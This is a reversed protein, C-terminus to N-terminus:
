GPNRVSVIPIILFGLILGTGFGVAHSLYSIQPDFTTPFLMVLVFGFARFIRVPVSHDTDHRIYLVLWLSVMGYAMGSAGLLRIAPDYVAVTVLNTILGIVVATVPFVRLGFYANLMWGFVLFILANSLLHVLDAHTLLSTLLRWYENNKFVSEGSVWLYEGEPYRNYTATALYFIIFLVLAPMAHRPAPFHALPGPPREPEEGFDDFGPINTDNNMIRFYLGCLYIWESSANRKKM